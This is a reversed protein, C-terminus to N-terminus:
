IELLLKENFEPNPDFAYGRPNCVVRVNHQMVYDFSCHTHGHFWYHIDVGDYYIKDDLDSHYASNQCRMMYNEREKYYPHISRSSPAHHTIVVVKQEDNDKVANKFIFEKAFNFDEVLHYPQLPEGNFTMYNFDNMMSKIHFMFMPNNYYDTWLTAGIFKVNDLVIFDKELFFVNDIGYMEEIERRFVNAAYFMDMTWYDHNGLVFVIYKFQKSLKEIWCFGNKDPNLFSTNNWIDGAIVLTTDPDSDLITPTWLPNRIVQDQDLHLDSVLRIFKM